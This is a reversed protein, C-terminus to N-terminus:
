KTNVWLTKKQQDKVWLDHYRRYDMAWGSFAQNTQPDFIRLDDQKSIALPTSTAAIIFNVDKASTAKAYGGDEQGETKGDKITIATYMRNEPTPIIPVGDISPCKTTFGGRAFDVAQIKGAMALEFEMQADYTMQIVLPGNYGNQRIAKIGAKIEAIITANAPTYGSKGMSAGTAITALKSIRYADLEPIVWSRQFEGMISSATLVFGTEDVDNKDIGFKRGRDQTMTYTKYGFNVNGGVFGANGTRGYDALGQTTLTPIKVENGGTYKVQGANAEMWGTCSEQVAMKDLENQILKSYEITNAM